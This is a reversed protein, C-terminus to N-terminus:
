IVQIEKLYGSNRKSLRYKTKCIKYLNLKLEKTCTTQEM